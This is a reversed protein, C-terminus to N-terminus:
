KTATQGMQTLCTEVRAVDRKLNRLKRVNREQGAFLAFEIQLREAKLERLMKLLEAHPKTRLDKITM